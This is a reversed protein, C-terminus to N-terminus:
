NSNGYMIYMIFESEERRLYKSLRQNKGKQKQLVLLIM